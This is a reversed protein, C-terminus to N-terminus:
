PKTIYLLLDITPYPPPPPPCVTFCEMFSDKEEVSWHSLTRKTPVPDLDM